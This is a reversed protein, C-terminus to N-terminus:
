KADKWRGRRISTITRGELYAQMAYVCREYYNCREVSGGHSPSRLLYDRLLMAQQVDGGPYLLSSRFETARGPDREYMECLAVAVMVRGVAHKKQQPFAALWTVSDKHEEFIEHAIRSDLGGRKTPVLSYFGNVVRVAVRNQARDPILTYKDPLSWPVQTQLCERDDVPCGRAVWARVAVGSQWIGYARHNGDSLYGSTNVQLPVAITDRWRGALIEDRFYEGHRQNFRRNYPLGSAFLKHAEEPTVLEQCIVVAPDNTM